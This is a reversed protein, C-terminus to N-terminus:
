MSIACVHLKDYSLIAVCGSIVGDLSTDVYWKVKDKSILPGPDAARTCHLDRPM